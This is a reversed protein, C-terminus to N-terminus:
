VRVRQLREREKEHTHHTARILRSLLMRVYRAEVAEYGAVGALNDLEEPDRRLNFLYQPGDEEADYVLKWNADRVMMLTGLESYVATRRAGRNNAIDLLSLGERSENGLHAECGAAHLFTPYLDVGSVLERCTRGGLRPELQIGPGAMVLPVKVSQEYFYRKDFIGYDGILDGHDATFVILTNDLLGRANLVDVLKGVYADILSIRGFYRARARRARQIIVSDDVAKPPPMEDEAYMSAYPEVAWYPPHPGLFGVQLYLPQDSQYANVYAAAQEGIYGDDFEEASLANPDYEGTRMMERFLVLKGREALFRTYRDQSHLHDDVVQWVHDFGFSQVVSDDELVDRGTHWEDIFHHKGIYATHYGAKKLHSPFTDGRESAALPPNMNGAVGHTTPFTGDVICARSPQCLPSACYANEFKVGRRALTSLHPAAAQNLADPRMQDVLILLINPQM